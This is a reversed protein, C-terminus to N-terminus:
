EVKTTMVTSIASQGSVCIEVTAHLPDLSTKSKTEGIFLYQYVDIYISSHWSSQRPMSITYRMCDEVLCV